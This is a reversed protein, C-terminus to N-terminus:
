ERRGGILMKEVVRGYAQRCMQSVRCAVAKDLPRGAAYASLESDAEILALKVDNLLAQDATPLRKDDTTM